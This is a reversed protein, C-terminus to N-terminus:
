GGRGAGRGEPRPDPRPEPRRILATLPALVVGREELGAAWAAVRDVLVPSVDGAVGLASGRERALRELEALRREIEGRTAPEDVVVDAARGFARAPAGAPPNPRPDVYLLGRDRLVEQVQGLLEPMQSFREGHMQGLAGIAGVYGRVRTLVWMLREANEATPLTTLLAQPGPDNLPYGTPELPLAILIEMGRARAREALPEPRAAYPSVALATAPPLRRIAEESLAGSLGIGGVVLGVRPRPDDRPFARAYARIPTRGDAGVRPLPGHRSAELLSPDPPAIPGVPEAAVRAAPPAALPPPTPAAPPAPASETQPRTAPADPPVPVVAAPPAAPTPLAPPAAAPPAPTAAASTEPAEAGGPPPVLAMASETVSSPPSPAEAQPAPAPLAAAPGSPAPSASPEVASAALDPPPGLVQLTAVGALLLAAAGAWFLKLARWGPLRPRAIAIVGRM